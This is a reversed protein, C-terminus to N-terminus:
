YLKIWTEDPVVPEDKVPRIPLWYIRNEMSWNRNRWDITRAYSPRSSNVSLSSWTLVSWNNQYTWTTGDIIWAEPIMLVRWSISGLMRDITEMDGVTTVHFGSPCPGRLIENDWLSDNSPSSWDGDVGQSATIFTGSTYYNWDGYGTTDVKVSSIPYWWNMSFWYNNWRQYFKWCNAETLTDGDNYVETAWLNKDAITIWEYWNNSMTILWLEVNHYIGPEVYVPPDPMVEDSFVYPAITENLAKYDDVLNKNVYIHLWYEWVLNELMDWRNYEGTVNADMIDWLIRLQSINPSLLFEERRAEPPNQGNQATITVRPASTMTFQGYYASHATQFKDYPIPEVVIENRLTMVAFQAMKFSVWINNESEYYATNSPQQLLTLPFTQFVTAIEFLLFYWLWRARWAKEEVPEIKVRHVWYEQFVVYESPIQESISTLRDQAEQQSQITTEPVYIQWALQWDVYLNVNIEPVNVYGQIDSIEVVWFLPPLLLYGWEVNVTEIDAEFCDATIPEDLRYQIPNLIGRNMM